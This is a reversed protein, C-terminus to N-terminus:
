NSTGGSQPPEFIIGTMEDFSIRDFDVAYKNALEQRLSMLANQQGDFHAKSQQLEAILQKGKAEWAAKLQEIENSKLQVAMRANVFQSEALKYRLLDDTSFRKSKPVEKLDKTAAQAAQAAPASKGNKMSKTEVQKVPQKKM